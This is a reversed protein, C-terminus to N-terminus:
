PQLNHIATVNGIVITSINTRNQYQRALKILAIVPYRTKIRSGSLFSDIRGVTTMHAREYITVWSSWELLDGVANLFAMEIHLPGIMVVDDEYKDPLLWQVQKAIAYFPQDATIVPPQQLNLEEIVKSIM